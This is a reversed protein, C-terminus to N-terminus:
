RAPSAQERASCADSLDGGILLRQGLSAGRVWTVQEPTESVYANMCVCVCVCVGGHTLCTPYHGWVAHIYIILLPTIDVTVIILQIVICIIVSVDSEGGLQVCYGSSLAVLSDGGAPVVNCARHM